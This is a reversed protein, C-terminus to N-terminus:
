MVKYSRNKEGFSLTNVCTSLSLTNFIILILNTISYPSHHKSLKIHKEIWAWHGERDRYLCMYIHIYLHIHKQIYLHIHICIYMCMHVHLSMSVYMYVHVCACMCVHMCAYLCHLCVPMWAGMCGDMRGHMCAYMRLCSNKSCLGSCCMRFLEFQYWTQAVAIHPLTLSFAGASPRAQWWYFSTLTLM